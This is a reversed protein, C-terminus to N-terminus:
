VASAHRLRNMLAQDKLTERDCLILIESYGKKDCLRLTAYLTEKSLAMQDIGAVPPSSQPLLALQKEEKKLSSLLEDLSHLLVVKAKPAYHRYKMGPSAVKEGQVPKHALVQCKLVAEIEEQTIIGPRLLLPKEFSVLDVVTSEIGCLSSGGDIVAAISGNFDDLVHEACTSSPKGSLNASPAALPVGAKKILAIATADKPMRVAITSLGCSVREPVNPHRKLVLTLPGPFFRSALTYFAPPIDVAIMEIEDLSSIHIILPNDKPRQKAAYIKEVAEENFVSAGLGYVTETPFAVIEGAKLLSAAQDIQDLSLLETKM